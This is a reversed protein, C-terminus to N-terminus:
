SNEEETCFAKMDFVFRYNQNPLCFEPHVPAGWSDDGGVGMRALAPRVVTHHIPPLEYAHSAQEIEYPTWPLASFEMLPNGTFRLGFGSDDTLEAYRVDTKNGCEQPIVYASLNDIVENYYTGIKAGKKRDSYSEEPGNGYWALHTFEAPIRLLMGFEPLDPMGKVKKYELKTRVTGDPFVTYALTVDVEPVSCLTYVYYIHAEKESMECSVQKKKRYESALKWQALRCPMQNGRDNDTSARWFNPYATDSLMERGRYRYSIMGDNRDKAFIIHFNRGRVGINHRCDAVEFQELEEKTYKKKAAKGVTYVYQGFSMEYGKLAYKRDEKLCLSVTVTYEGPETRVSVPLEFDKTEGPAVAASLTGKEVCYGDKDVCIRCLYESANTFLAYNTIRVTSATPVIDFSSYNFKIEQLKPSNTRDGNVFGNVCFNLDNPRDSFDGGYALFEEGYRNKTRISQDIYDWIFGGQYRPERKALNTYKYMAGNSNGMAHTYECCIFPKETNEALFAEIEPVKTYMQSEMDSTDNFRREHVVGEYHVLRTDDCKRFHESMDFINKGGSSENGCSWILISPHNKDRQLMSNARDVVCDHWEPKDEPIAHPNLYNEARYDWTGHTELNTEDIVYLGYEDCLDYFETNNPYHSTRVANINHRKMNWVDTVMEDSTVARGYDCSFEHRNTGCFVIRKGNLCMLGDKMEFSRFGLRQSIIETLRGSDDYVHLELLYLNPHEASWLAPASVKTRVTLPEVSPQAIEILFSQLVGPKKVGQDCRYLDAKIKAKKGSNLKEALRSSIGLQLTLSLEADRYDSDLITKIFLDEVHLQPRSYLSVDRFIGSLRWFDQDEMWSGSSWKFVQVALRNEGKHVLDTIDFDAPTFSDESYGVFSGNVWVAFASEVGQFSLYKREEQMLVPVRFNTVYSGVPNFKQPIEGAYINEHGDWPYMVNVYQPLDFGQFQMHGPVRIDAWASCDYDVTYFDKPLQTFDPAYHFKWTGNLSSFFTSNGEKMEQERRFYRHNSHAPERNVAFYTPDSIRNREFLSMADEQIMFDLM